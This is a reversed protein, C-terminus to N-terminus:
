PRIVPRTVRRRMRALAEPTVGLFSAIIYQPVQRAISARSTIFHRYREDLSDTMLRANRRQSGVLAQEVMLRGFRESAHDRDFANFIAARPIAIIDSAALAQIYQDSPAQSVFSAVDTYISNAEFFQGTREDGSAHDLYYYRILGKHVFYLHEVRDGADVLHANKKVHKLDAAAAIRVSVDASLTLPRVAEAFFALFAAFAPHDNQM